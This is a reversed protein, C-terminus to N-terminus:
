QMKEKIEEFFEEEWEQTAFEMDSITEHQEFRTTNLLVEEVMHLKEAPMELLAQEILLFGERILQFGEKIKKM